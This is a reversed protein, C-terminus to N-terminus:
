LAEAISLVRRALSGNRIPRVSPPQTRMSTISSVISGVVHSIMAPHLEVSWSRSSRVPYRHASIWPRCVIRLWTLEVGNERVDITLVDLAV